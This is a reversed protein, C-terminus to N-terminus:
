NKVAKAAPRIIVECRDGTRTVYVPQKNANIKAIVRRWEKLSGNTHSKYKLTGHLSEAICYNYSGRFFASLEIKVPHLDCFKIALPHQLTGNGTVKCGCEHDQYIMDALGGCNNVLDVYRRATFTEYAINQQQQNM